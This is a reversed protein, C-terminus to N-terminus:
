GVIRHDRSLLPKTVAFVRLARLEVGLLVCIIEEAAEKRRQAKANEFDIHVTSCERM